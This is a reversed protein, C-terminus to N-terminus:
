LQQSPLCPHGPNSRPVLSVGPSGESRETWGRGGLVFHRFRLVFGRLQTWHLMTSPCINTTVIQGQMAIVLRDKVRRPHIVGKRGLM